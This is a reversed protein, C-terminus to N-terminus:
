LIYSLFQRLNTNDITACKQPENQSADILFESM